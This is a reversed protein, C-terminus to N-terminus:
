HLCELARKPLLQSNFSGDRDVPMDIGLLGQSSKVTKGKGNRRNPRNQDVYAQIEGDLSTQLLRQILPTLIGNEGTLEDGEM